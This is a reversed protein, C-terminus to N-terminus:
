RSLKSFPCERSWRFILLPLSFKPPFDRRYSPNRVLPSKRNELGGLPMPVQTQPSPDEVSFYYPPPPEPLVRRTEQAAHKEIFSFFALQYLFHPHTSTLAPSLGFFFSPTPNGPCRSRPDSLTSAFREFVVCGKLLSPLFRDNIKGIM